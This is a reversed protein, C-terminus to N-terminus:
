QEFKLKEFQLEDERKKALIAEEEELKQNKEKTGLDELYRTLDGIQLDVEDITQEITAGWAKVDEISEAAELKGKEIDLKIDEMNAVIKRLAERHRVIKDNSGKKVVADTKGCTLTLLQLEADLAKHKSEM